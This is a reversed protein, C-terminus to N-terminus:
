QKLGVKKLFNENDYWKKQVKAVLKLNIKLLFVEAIRKRAVIGIRKITNANRGILMAKHNESDTIIDAYITLFNDKEIIKNILVECCYPLEDSLNQYISEIILEKIVDKTTKDTSFEPDFFYPHEPLYKVMEDLLKNKYFKNKSSYPIINPVIDLKNFEELKDLLKKPEVLDVKNIVVIHEVKPKLDLFKKYEDLSDFISMVFVILDCEDLSKKAAEILLQNFNKNSEHLGPTDILIIQNEDHMIVVNMKRRTANEKHSVLCINEGLLSNIMTSKGANTRGIVSVFGSKM